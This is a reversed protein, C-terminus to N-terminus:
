QAGGPMTLHAKSPASEDRASPQKSYCGVISRTACDTDRLASAPSTSFRPALALSAPEVHDSAPTPPLPNRSAARHAGETRKQPVPTWLVRATTQSPS